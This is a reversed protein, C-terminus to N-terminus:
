AAAKGSTRAVFAKAADTLELGRPHYVTRTICGRQELALLHGRAATTSKFGFAACIERVSPARDNAAMYTSLFRLVDAQKHTLRKM